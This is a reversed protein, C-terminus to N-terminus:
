SMFVKILLWSNARRSCVVADSLTVSDIVTVGDGESVEETVCVLESDADIVTVGVM